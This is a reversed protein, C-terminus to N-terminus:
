QFSCEVKFLGTPAFWISCSAARTEFGAALTFYPRLGSSEGRCSEPSTHHTDQEAREPKLNGFLLGRGLSGRPLKADDNELTLAGGIVDQRSCRAFWADSNLVILSISGNAGRNGEGKGLLPGPADKGSFEPRKNDARVTAAFRESLPKQRVLDVSGELNPDFRGKDPRVTHCDAGAAGGHGM